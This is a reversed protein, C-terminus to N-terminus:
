YYPAVTFLVIGKSLVLLYNISILLLRITYIIILLNKAESRKAALSLM